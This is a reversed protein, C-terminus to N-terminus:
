CMTITRELVREQVYSNLVVKWLAYFDIQQPKKANLFDTKYWNIKYEIKNDTMFGKWPKYRKPIPKFDIEDRWNILDEM